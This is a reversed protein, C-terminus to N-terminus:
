RSCIISKKGIRRKRAHKMLFVDIKLGKTNLEEVFPVFDDMEWQSQLKFLMQFREKIDTPLTDRSLYQLNSGVPRFFWGRLMELDIDFPAYPPFTSKWKILFEAPPISTGSAYKRLARIGYWEAVKRQNLQWCNEQDCLRKGYKELVTKIVEKTYPNVDQEMDKGVADFTAELGLRSLDLSEAMASMLTVHLAKSLFDASLICPYGRFTCGGVQAWQAMCEQESCASTALLQHLSKIPKNEDLPIDMNGNYIPISDLNIRGKVKKTEYEFTTKTFGAFDSIPQPLGFTSDLKVEEEPIFEHMLMVTNSHNKQRLIWTKDKSCLVVDSSKDDAAKFQLKSKQSKLVELLEANLQLLKYCGDNSLRSHLNISM